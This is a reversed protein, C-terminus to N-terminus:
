RLAEGVFPLLSLARRSGIEVDVQVTSGLHTVAPLDRTAPIVGEPDAWAVVVARQVTESSLEFRKRVDAPSQIRPEVHTLRTRAPERAAPWRVWVTQGVSLKASSEPPVLVVLNLKGKSETVVAVGSAYVPVQAAWALVGAVILLGLLIWLCLFTRPRIFRPLVSKEQGQVLHSLAERRFIPRTEDPM